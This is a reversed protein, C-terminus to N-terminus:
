EQYWQGGRRIYNKGGISKREQQTNPQPQGGQPNGVLNQSKADMRGARMRATAILSDLRDQKGKITEASDGTAPFYSKSLGQLQEKTYAAGTNLTLAADLMDLQAAEVQQRKSSTAANAVQDGVFPIRALAQPLLEPKAVSPDSATLEKLINLGIQIRLAYGGAKKEDETPESGQSKVVPDGPGGPIATLTREGNAGNVWQYGAPAPANSDRVGPDSPGGAIPQLKRGGQTDAVWQYGSPAPMNQGKVNPDEPGGPIVQLSREGGEGSVWRYGAPAPLNSNKVNPDNPGGTIPALARQGDAGTIWSYGAPAQQGKSMQLALNLMRHRRTENRDAATFPNAIMQGDPTLWGEQGLQMNGQAESADRYLQQGMGAIRKDGALSAGIALPLMAARQQRGQTLMQLQEPTFQPQAGQQAMLSQYLAMPDNTQGNMSNGRTQSLANPLAVGMKKGLLEMVQAQTKGQLHPNAAIAVPDLISEMPTNPASKLFKPGGGEGFHWNAYLSVPNVDLGQTKLVREHRQKLRDAFTRQLEPDTSWADKTVHALDPHDQKVQNFAADTFGFLGQASSLPTPSRANINGGSEAMAIVDLLNSM